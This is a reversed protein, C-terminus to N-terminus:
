VRKNFVGGLWLLLMVSTVSGFWWYEHHICFIIVAITFLFLIKRATQIDEEEQM